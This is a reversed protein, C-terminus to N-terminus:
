RHRGIAELRKIDRVVVCRGAPRLLGDAQWGAVTRSATSLTTGSLEALEQRTIPYPILLGDGTPQGCQRVLRVISRAVRQEVRETALERVRTMADSMHDAMERMINTRVQPHAALLRALAPRPWARLRAAGVALATVPYAAHDLAVVGGFPESPCVLRVIIEDGAATTQILKLLGSEVLYFTEAPDGQQVLVQGRRLDRREAADLWAQREVATLGDFVRSRTPDPESAM